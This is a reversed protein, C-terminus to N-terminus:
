LQATGLAYNKISVALPHESASEVSAVLQFFKEKDLTDHPDVPTLFPTLNDDVEATDTENNGYVKGDTSFLTWETVTPKGKFIFFSIFLCIFSCVFLSVFLCVFLYFLYIFLYIFLCVFLYLFLCIFLYIFYCSLIFLIFFCVKM